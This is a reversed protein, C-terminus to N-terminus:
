KVFSFQRVKSDLDTCTTTEQRDELFGSAPSVTASQCTVLNSRVLISNKKAKAIHRRLMEKLQVSVSKADAPRNRSDKKLLLGILTALEAPCDPVLKTLTPPPQEIHQRLMLFQSEAQFPTQGSLLEFLICGLAYLDVSPTMMKSGTIQEPAMYACSGVTAGVASVRTVGQYFAIGFDGLKVSGAQSLFLNDPKLDRHIIKNAHIYELASCIEIALKLVQDVGPRQEQKLYGGLSGGEMIEMVYYRHGSLEGDDLYAVVHAHRMVRVVRIEREFRECSRPNELLLPSIFKVAVAQGTRPYVARYVTSMGGFGIPQQVEFPLGHQNSLELLNM